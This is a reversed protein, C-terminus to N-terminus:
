KVGTNEKLQTGIKVINVILDFDKSLINRTQRSPAQINIKKESKLFTVVQWSIDKPWQVGINEKLLTM